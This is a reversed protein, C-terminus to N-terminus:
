ERGVTNLLANVEYLSKEGTKSIRDISKSFIKSRINVSNELFNKDDSSVYKKDNKSIFSDVQQKVLLSKFKDMGNPNINKYFEKSFDTTKKSNFGLCKDRTGSM